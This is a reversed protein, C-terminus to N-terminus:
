VGVSMSRAPPVIEDVRFVTGAVSSAVPPVSVPLWVVVGTANEFFPGPCSVISFPASTTRALAAV